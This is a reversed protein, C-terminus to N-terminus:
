EEVDLGFSGSGPELRATGDLELENGSDDLLQGVATTPRIVVDHPADRLSKERSASCPTGDLAEITVSLHDYPTRAILGPIDRVREAEEIKLATRYRYCRQRFNFARAWSPLRFRVGNPREAAAQMVPIVDSYAAPSKAPM